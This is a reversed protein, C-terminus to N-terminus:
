GKEFVRNEADDGCRGSKGGDIGAQVNRAQSQAILRSTSQGEALRALLVSGGHARIIDAGVVQAETYDSGKILLDPQLAEILERPTEQDFLVVTSVGKIAGIVDARSKESQVPRGPGKLRRVSEDTNLAIVLRDCVEAGQRILSIHGPHLVDFCGNALGVTLRESQWYRRLSLLKDWSVIRGDQVDISDVHLRMSNFLEECSVTATGLKSVVIGAAHNAAKMADTVSLGAALAGGLVAVVTDGAGSVDFVQRAVTSLHTPEGECPLLSMGKESRTVLVDAGSMEQAVKGAVVIEDDTDCPKGTALALEVRNPTILSAGRYASLDRRKPDVIAPKQERRAHALSARLVADSLVGKGYDSFIVLDSASIAAVARVILENEIETPIAGRDERDLRAIQQQYGLIRTKTTTVRLPTVFIGSRDITGYRDLESALRDFDADQGALGVLKVSAGLSAVNAAVNAAGGPVVRESIQQVVPVPAEPSIRDVGGQIYIDLMLDGIIALRSRNFDKFSPLM